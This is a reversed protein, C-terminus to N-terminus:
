GPSTRPIQADRESAESPSASQTFEVPKLVLRIHRGVFSQVVRPGKGERVPQQTNVIFLTNHIDLGLEERHDTHFLSRYGLTSTSFVVITTTVITTIIVVEVEPGVGPGVRNAHLWLSDRTMVTWTERSRTKKRHWSLATLSTRKKRRFRRKLTHPHIQRLLRRRQRPRQQLGRLRSPFREM